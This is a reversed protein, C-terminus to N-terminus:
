REIQTLPSIQPKNEVLKPRLWLLYLLLGGIAMLWGTLAFVATVYMLTAHFLNLLLLQIGMLATLGTVFPWPRTALYLNLWVSGLGFGVMAIGMWGLIPVAAAYAPGFVLQIIAPAFRFYVATIVLGSAVVLATARWLLKDPVRGQKIWAVVRPYLIVVAVGPLLAVVRRLVVASAYGGALEPAFYRNVWVLDLSFFSMYSAYALFAALSLRWGSWMTTDPLTLGRQWIARGLFLLGAIFSLILALPLVAVGAFATGGWWGIWAVALLLRGSAFVTRVLGFAIFREQGQLLGTIVPRVLALFATVAILPILNAPINLWQALSSQALWIVATLGLGVLASQRLFQQFVARQREALESKGGYKAVVPGMVAFTTVVVLMIANATQVIAFDGPTLFRGIFLHFGYDVVNTFADLGFLLVM